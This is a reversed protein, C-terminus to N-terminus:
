ATPTASDTAATSDRFGTAKAVVWYFYETDAVVALDDYTVDGGTLEAILIATNIDNTTSKYLKYSTADDAAVFAITVKIPDEGATATMETVADLTVYALCAYAANFATYADSLATRLRTLMSDKFALYDADTPTVTYPARNPTVLLLDESEFDQSKELYEIQDYISNIAATSVSAALFLTSSM